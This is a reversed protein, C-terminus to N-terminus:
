GLRRMTQPSCATRAGTATRHSSPICRAMTSSCRILYGNAVDIMKQRTARMAAAAFRMEYDGRATITGWLGDDPRLEVNNETNKVRAAWRVKRTDHADRATLYDDLVRYLFARDCTSTPQMLEAASTATAVAAVTVIACLTFINKM